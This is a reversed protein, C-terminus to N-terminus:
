TNPGWCSLFMVKRLSEESQQLKLYKDEGRSMKINKSVQLTSSPPASAALRSAAAETYSRLNAEVHQHLKTISYNWRAFGLQDKLAEVSGISAAVVWAASTSVM